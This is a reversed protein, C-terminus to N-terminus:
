RKEAFLLKYIKDEAVKRWALGSTELVAEYPLQRNAVLLLKGGRHLSAFAVKLFTRGLDVDTAQGTHFPPNMVIADYHDFLGTTVDHWHFNIEPAGEPASSSCSFASIANQSPRHTLNRRACDLARADAEYLDLKSVNPCRKLVADSLFGWGAGLDAVKGRLHAPLHDALLQSGPDIHDSSFIGARVTFGSIERPAGLTRWANFVAEDAGDLIAHFARCKHKQISTINGAARSLEKEFRGAGATNPMAVLLRGGPELRDKAMAFWALTEDKSKGPLMMVLPWKEATLDDVRPFGANEWATARPKSPQWGSVWPWAMLAPHPEAGMFLARTPIALGDGAGCAHMLTELPANVCIPCLFRVFFTGGNVFVLDAGLVWLDPSQQLSIRLFGSKFATRM